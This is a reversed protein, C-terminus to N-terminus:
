ITLSRDSIIIRVQIWWQLWLYFLESSDAFEIKVLMVKDFGLKFNGREIFIIFVEFLFLLLTIKFWYDTGLKFENNLAM